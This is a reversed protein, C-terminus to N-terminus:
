GSRRASATVELPHTEFNPTKRKGPAPPSTMHLTVTFDKTVGKSAPMEFAGYREHLQAIFVFPAGIVDIQGVVGGIALVLTEPKTANRRGAATM